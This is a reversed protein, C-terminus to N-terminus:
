TPRWVLIAGGAVDALPNGQGATVNGVEEEFGCKEYFGESGASCIVITPSRTSQADELGRKVLTMGHGQGQAEPMIALYELEQHSGLSTFHHQFFPQAQAFANVRSIDLSVDPFLVSDVFNLSRMIAFM